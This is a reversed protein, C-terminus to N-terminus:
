KQQQNRERQVRQLKKISFISKGQETTYARVDDVGALTSGTPLKIADKKRKIKKNLKKKRKLKREKKFLNQLLFESRSM